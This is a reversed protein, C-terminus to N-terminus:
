VLNIALRVLETLKNLECIYGKGNELMKKLTTFGYQATSTIRKIKKYVLVVSLWYLKPM